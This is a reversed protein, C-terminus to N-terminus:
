SGGGGVRDTVDLSDVAERRVHTAAGQTSRLAFWGLSAAALAVLLVWPFWTLPPQWESSDFFFRPGKLGVASRRANAYWAIGQAAAAVMLVGSVATTLLPRPLLRRGRLVTEGAILPIGVALPLVYRGQMGFGTMARNIASVVVTIVLTGLLWASIAFRDRRRGVWFAVGILGVFMAGWALHAVRPMPVDLSGFVGVEQRLIEPIERVSRPVFKVAAGPGVAGRPQFNLEWALGALVALGVAWASGLAWGGGSRFASWIARFGSYGAVAVLGTAIWLPGLPRSLALIGGSVAMAAWPWRPGTSCRSVRLLSGLFCAAATTEPGSASLSAALFTVMPTVALVLGVQSVARGEPDWLLVAAATLLALSILATGARGLRVASFPDDALRALLGPLAYAVPNATGVHTLQISSRPDVRLDNQCAASRNPQLVNCQLGVPSLGAPVEVARSNRKTWAVDAPDSPLPSIGPRRGIPEGRAVSLAKLYHATEDPASGPPNGFIWAIVLLVYAVVLLYPGATWRFGYRAVTPMTM